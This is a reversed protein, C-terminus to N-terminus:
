KGLYKPNLVDLIPNLSTKLWGSFGHETIEPLGLYLNHEIQKFTEQMSDRSWTPDNFMQALSDFDPRTNAIINILANHITSGGVGRARPYRVIYCSSAGDVLILSECVM